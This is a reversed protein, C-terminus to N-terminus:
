QIMCVGALAQGCEQKVGVLEGVKGVVEIQQSAESSENYGEVSEKLQRLNDLFQRREPYENSWSVMDPLCENWM